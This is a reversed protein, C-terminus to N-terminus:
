APLTEDYASDFFARELTAARTFLARVRARGAADLAIVERDLAARLGRVFSEFYPSAHLDVWEACWFPQPPRTARAPRAWSLYVWEAVCLVALQDAHVASEAAEVMLARFGRAADSLPPDRRLAESVGLADFARVFFTNEESCLLGMFRGLPLRSPLDPATHIARGLLACFAGIFQYDQVLYRRMVTEPVRGANCDLAFRHGVAASWDPEAAARLWETPAAGPHAARFEPWDPVESM